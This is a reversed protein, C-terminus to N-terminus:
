LLIFDEGDGNGGGSASGGHESFRPLAHGRGGLRMRELVELRVIDHWEKTLEDMDNQNMMMIKNEEQLIKDMAKNEEAMARREEIAAKRMTEEKLLQWKQQKEQAKKEALEKKAEVTKVVLVENSKVM